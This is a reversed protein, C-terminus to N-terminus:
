WQIVNRSTQSLSSNSSFSFYTKKKFSFSLRKLFNKPVKKGTLLCGQDGVCNDRRALQWLPCIFIDRRQEDAHNQSCLPVVCFFDKLLFWSPSNWALFETHAENPLGAKYHLPLVSYGMLDACLEIEKMKREGRRARRTKLPGAIRQRSPM